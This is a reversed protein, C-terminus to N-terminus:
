LQREARLEQGGFGVGLDRDGFRAPRLVAAQRPPSPDRPHDRPAQRRGANMTSPRAHRGRRSRQHQSQNKLEGPYYQGYLFNDPEQFGTQPGLAMSDFKGYFSTSIYAGYEKQNLKADIGIDKLHKLVLQATDIVVQSGYTTFDVTASFGNAHGAEALLKRAESPDPKFSRAGEGLQAM